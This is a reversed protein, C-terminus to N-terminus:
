GARQRQKASSDAAEQQQDSSSTAQDAVLTAQDRTISSTAATGGSSGSSTSSTTSTTSKTATATTSAAAAGSTESDEDETLKADDSQLSLETSSVSESLATTDLSALTEGATVQAGPTVNVSAVQGGVQFSASADNVPEITGVVVLNSAVVVRVVKGAIRYSGNGSGSAALATAGGAVLLVVVM